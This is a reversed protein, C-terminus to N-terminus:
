LGAAQECKFDPSKSIVDKVQDRASGRFRIRSARCEDSSVFRSEKLKGFNAPEQAERLEYTWVKRFEGSEAIERDM